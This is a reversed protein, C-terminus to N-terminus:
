LSRQGGLAGRESLGLSEFTARLDGASVVCFLVVQVTVM